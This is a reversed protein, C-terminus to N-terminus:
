AREDELHVNIFQFHSTNSPTQHTSKTHSLGGPGELPEGLLQAPSLSSQTQRVLPGTLTMALHKKKPERGQPGQAKKIELGREQYYSFFFGTHKTLISLLGLCPPPPLCTEGVLGATKLGFDGFIQTGIVQPPFTSTFHAALPSVFALLLLSVHGM